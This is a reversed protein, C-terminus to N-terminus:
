STRRAIGKVSLLIVTDEASPDIAVTYSTEQGGITFWVLGDHVYSEAGALETIFRYCDFETMLVTQYGNLSQQHTLESLYEFLRFFPNGETSDAGSIMDDIDLHKRYEEMAAYLKEDSSSRPTKLGIYTIYCQTGDFYYAIDASLVTDNTGIRLNQVYYMDDDKSYMCKDANLSDGMDMSLFATIERIYKEQDKFPIEAANGNEVNYWPYVSPADISNVTSIEPDFLYNSRFIKGSSSFAIIIVALAVAICILYHSVNKLIKM